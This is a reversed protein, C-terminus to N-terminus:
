PAPRRAMLESLRAEYGRVSAEKVPGFGRIQQPAAAMETLWALQTATASELLEKIQQEYRAILAREMRREATRGFPDLPTGRLGKFRALLGFAPLMWAGFERKVPRGTAADTGSLGPPALNFALRPIGEFTAEIQQRFEPAAYLRAVEYEDKYALLRFFSRAVAEALRTEGPALRNEVAAAADVLSRYRAAYREDQYQVLFSSRRALVEDLGSALQRQSQAGGVARAEVAQPELAYRRGWRFAATNMAVAAGNLVIATEIAAAGVPVWGRQYALGLMFLNTAISDGCLAVALAAADVAEVREAGVARAINRLLPQGPFVLDPRRTFDGPMVQQSNVLARTRGARALTLTKSSASVVLDCGLIFDAGGPAVRVAAIDDPTTGFRLHTWVSGGKQAMGAMDLVGVGKGELHAAMGLLAGITVVGTGGVGTVVMGYGGSDLAPLGPEPLAADLGESGGRGKRLKGGRVTVFSPCFGKLCSFDKNCASQDIARKRGLETEVPVLAVCNSQVGCDGCGECVMENIVLRMDPDPFDGRKRRRRKEAACTQDYILVTTGAIERLERQVADLQERPHLTVGPAFGAKEADGYKGIDDSVVAIRAVGEAHVQRSILMPDLPGDHRQGGTMAVADNFLIKFTINTHAAVAARVALLGSHFYTGDGMNQFMHARRSFPAEGVWSLGEAGMQTYGQTNRDMVQAMWSCGIGAYARSGEPVHTSTSHPCGACFYFGRSMAEVDPLVVRRQELAALADELTPDLAALRRGIVRAILAADLAMEIPLLKAGQEDRKGIVAPAGPRGYLIEKVQSELLPRKEEVVILKELGGAFAALGQPELPWVMGVKYVALGLADARAQDIGLDALAQRVDLWSKGATVIGIRAGERRGFVVRDLRNARAFARAADLKHNVLRFEQAHPTDPQRINLGDAPLVHDAPLEMTPRLDDVDVSGSAEVTDKVCKMGVWCGSYRSLAWGILGFDLLEAVGAPSLIPMQADVLAFESQHCTTSSECTHDDGMLVLVGGHRSSGALNAHRLADGSRDVGPGKGYWISFVGDFRGEGGIEAQQSGWVATAALDENVGPVFVVDHAQLHARAKALQDDFGGLPSGRYGSIYGATNLGARRDRRKQMLPLRVLAQVGTLYVTGSEATYKDDLSVTRLHGAESLDSMRPEKPQACRWISGALNDVDSYVTTKLRAAYL